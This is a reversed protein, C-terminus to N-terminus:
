SPPLKKIEIGLKVIRVKEGNEMKLKLNTRLEGM